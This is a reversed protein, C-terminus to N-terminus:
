KECLQMAALGALAGSVVDILDHKDALMRGAGVSSGIPIGFEIKWGSASFALATHMSFFSKNDSKDPREKKVIRKAGEASGLAAGYRISQCKFAKIKDEQRFTHITDATLQIGLIIDSIRGALEQASIVSSFLIVFILTKM